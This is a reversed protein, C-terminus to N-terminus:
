RNFAGPRPLELQRPQHVSCQGVFNTNSTGGAYYWALGGPNAQGVLNTSTPPSYAYNFPEWAIPLAFSNTCISAVVFAFLKRMSKIPKLKYVM